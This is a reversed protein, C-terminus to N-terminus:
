SEASRDYVLFARGWGRFTGLATGGWRSHALWEEFARRQGNNDFLPLGAFSDLGVYHSLFGRLAAHADWMSDGKFVGLKLCTGASVDSHRLHERIFRLPSLRSLMDGHLTPESYAHSM